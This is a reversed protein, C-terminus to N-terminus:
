ILNMSRMFALGLIGMFFVLIVTGIAIAQGKTLKPIKLAAVQAQAEVVELHVEMGKPSIQQQYRWYDDWSIVEGAVITQLKDKFKEIFKDFTITDGDELKVSSIKDTEGEYIISEIKSM